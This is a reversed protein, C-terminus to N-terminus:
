DPGYRALPYSCSTMETMQKSSMTIDQVPIRGVPETELDSQTQFAQYSQTLSEALDPMDAAM